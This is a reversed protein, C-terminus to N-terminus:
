HDAATPITGPALVHNFKKADLYEIQLEIKYDSRDLADSIGELITDSWPYGQHYSNIYLVSKSLREALGDTPFFAFICIICSFVITICPLRDARPRYYIM